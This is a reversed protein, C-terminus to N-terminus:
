SFHVVLKCWGHKRVKWEGEGYVKLGRSDVVLHLSEGRFLRKEICLPVKLSKQRRCIQSYSPVPLSIQALDFLSLVFGKLQRFAMRFVSKLSLLALICADSYEYQGGRTNTDDYKWSGLAQGDLWLTFSGRKKLDSNYAAWNKVQYKQKLTSCESAKEVKAM